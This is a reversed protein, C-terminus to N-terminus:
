VTMNEEIFPEQLYELALLKRSEGLYYIAVFHDATLIDYLAKQVIFDQDQVGITYDTQNRVHLWLKGEVSHVNNQAVDNSVIRQRSRLMLVARLFGITWSLAFIGSLMYVLDDQFLLSLVLPLILPFLYLSALGRWFTMRQAQIRESQNLGVEGKRNAALDEPTLGLLWQIQQNKSESELM